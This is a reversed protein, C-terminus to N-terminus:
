GMREFILLGFLSLLAIKEDEESLENVKKVIYRKGLSIRRMDLTFIEADNSNLLIFAPDWAKSSVYELFTGEFLGGLAKGMPKGERIKFKLRGNALVDHWSTYFSFPRNKELTFYVEGNKDIFQLIPLASFFKKVVIQYGVLRNSGVSICHSSERFLIHEDADKITNELGLVASVIELPYKMLTIIFEFFLGCGHSHPKV